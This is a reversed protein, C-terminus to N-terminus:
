AIDRLKKWIEVMALTDLDCYKLLHKITKEKDPSNNFIHKFWYLSATGGEQIGELNKHNLSPVLVPLVNKISCSGRFAPHVYYQKKFINMLDFVRNNVSELFKSYKPFQNGMEENRTMEFPKYWVIVSGGDGIHQQMSMLLKPVPNDQEKHLYEYHEVKSGKSRIIHLSYQFCVQQYPSTGDFLPIASAYTEYDLFYLPYELKNLTIGISEKDIITKGTKAAQIQNTQSESLQMDDPIDTIELIGKDKLLKLKSDSVRQLDYISYKPLFSWCVDRLPCEYPHKCQPGIECSPESGQSILKLAKPINAEATSRYNEVQNSIDEITFLKKPEIKGKRIYESNVHVLYTRGIKYGDREFAIKQFCLDPVHVGEEVKTLSKVEYIDWSKTKQNYKLIDSRTLLDKPMATAQFILREGADVYKKTEQQGKQFNNEVEKGKGFLMRAWNEVEYGQDFVAQTVESPKPILDKNHKYTWLLKQCQIYKLYNSKTLM